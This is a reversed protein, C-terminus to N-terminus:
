WRQLGGKSELPKVDKKYQPAGFQVCYELHPQVLASCVQDGQQGTRHRSKGYLNQSEAVSGGCGTMHQSRLLNSQSPKTLPKIENNLKVEFMVCQNLSM